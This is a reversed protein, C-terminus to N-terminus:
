ISDRLSRQPDLDLDMRQQFPLDAAATLRDCYANVESEVVKRPALFPGSINVWRSPNSEPDRLRLIEHVIAYGDGTGDDTYM